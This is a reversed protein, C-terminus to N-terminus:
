SSCLISKSHIQPDPTHKQASGWTFLKESKCQEGGPVDNTWVRWGTRHTTHQRNGRDNGISIDDLCCAVRVLLIFARSGRVVQMFKMFNGDNYTSMNSNQPNSLLRELMGPTCITFIPQHVANWVVLRLNVEIVKIPVTDHETCVTGRVLLYGLFSLMMWPHM